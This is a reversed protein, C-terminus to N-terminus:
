FNNKMRWEYIYIIWKVIAYMNMHKVFQYSKETSNITISVIRFFFIQIIYKLNVSTLTLGVAKWWIRLISQPESSTTIGSSILWYTMSWRAISVNGNCNSMAHVWKRCLRLNLLKWVRSLVHCNLHLIKPLPVNYIGSCTVHTSNKRKQKM